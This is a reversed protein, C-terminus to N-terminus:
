WTSFQYLVISVTFRLSNKDVYDELLTPTSMIINKMDETEKQQDANIYMSAFLKVCRKEKEM